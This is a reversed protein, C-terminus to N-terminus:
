PGRNKSLRLDLVDFGGGFGSVKLIDEFWIHSDQFEFWLGQCRSLVNM